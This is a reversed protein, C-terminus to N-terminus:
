GSPARGRPGSWQNACKGRGALEATEAVRRARTDARKAQVVWELIGRRASRPFAGWQERSAPVAEFAAALDAPVALDEVADLMTWSGDTRAAEVVRRGAEAM